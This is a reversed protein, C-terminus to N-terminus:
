AMRVIEGATIGNLERYGIGEFLELIRTRMAEGGERRAIRVARREVDRNYNKRYENQCSPCWRHKAAAERLGCKRCVMAKSDANMATIM